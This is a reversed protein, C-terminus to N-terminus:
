IAHVEVYRLSYLEYGLNPERHNHIAAVIASSLNVHLKYFVLLLDQRGIPNLWANKFGAIVLSIGDKLGKIFSVFRLLHPTPIQVGGSALLNLWDLSRTLESGGQSALTLIPRWPDISLSEPNGKDATTSDSSTSFRFMTSRELEFVRHLFTMPQTFM